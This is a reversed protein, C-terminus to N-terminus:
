ARVRLISFTSLNSASYTGNASSKYAAGKVTYSTGSTASFTHTSSQTM